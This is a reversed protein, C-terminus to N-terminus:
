LLCSMLGLFVCLHNVKSDNNRVGSIFILVAGVYGLMFRSIASVTKDTNNFCFEM